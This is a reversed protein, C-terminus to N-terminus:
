VLDLGFSRSSGWIGLSQGVGGRHRSVGTGSVAWQREGPLCTLTRGDQRPPRVRTGGDVQVQQEIYNGLVQWVACLVDM